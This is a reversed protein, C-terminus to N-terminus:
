IEVARQPAALAREVLFPTLAGAVAFLVALLVWGPAGWVFCLTILLTPGLLSMGGWGMAWVGQYQGQLHEPPLGFGIGFSAASQKLEGIVNFIAGMILIAAALAPTGAWSASFYVLVSVFLWVGSARQLRGAVRPDEAGRSMRVQFLVCAATNVIYTVAVVWRPADTAQILWLPVVIELLLFHMSMFSNLVMLVVFTHDRLAETKRVPAEHKIPELDPLRRLFNAAVLTSVANLVLLGRYVNPNDLALALGGILSGIGIGLNVVSRLYARVRVRNEGGIRSILANRAARSGQDSIGILVATILFSTYNTAFAYGTMAIASIFALRVNITKPSYVDSFHGLPLTAILAAGAALSLGFGLQLASIGIVQTFYIASVVSFIGNGLTNIFSAVAMIAEDHSQPKLDRIGSKLIEIM